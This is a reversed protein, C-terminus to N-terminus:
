SEFPWGSVLKSWNDWSAQQLISFHLVIFKEINVFFNPGLVKKFESMLELSEKTFAKVNDIDPTDLSKM